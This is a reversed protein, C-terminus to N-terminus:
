VEVRRGFVVPIFAEGNINFGLRVEHSGRSCREISVRIPAHENHARANRANFATPTYGGEGDWGQM